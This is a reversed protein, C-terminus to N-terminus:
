SRYLDHTDIYGLVADPVLFRVSLGRRIRDRIETSAIQIVPTDLVDAELRQVQAEVLETRLASWSERDWGARGATVIRCADVLESVRRWSLLEALSDAGIIWHLAVDEGLTKRFHLVTDITYSPGERTLDFDSFELGPEDAIALRVMEARHGCALLGEDQKHPPNASPLFIIRDLSLQEQVARAIILHGCHVPDFTGGYLGVRQPM